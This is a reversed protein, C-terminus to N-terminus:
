PKPLPPQASEPMPLPVDNVDFLPENPTPQVDSRKPKGSSFWGGSGSSKSRPKPTAKPPPPDPPAPKLEETAIYGTTGDELMVKSYGFQRDLMTLKEGQKLNFDAGFAQAPGYKYFQVNREAALYKNGPPMPGSTECAGLLFMIASSSAAIPLCRANM